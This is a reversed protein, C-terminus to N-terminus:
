FGLPKRRSMARNTMDGLWISLGGCSASARDCTPNDSAVTEIVQGGLLFTYQYSAVPDPSADLAQPCGMSDEPPLLIPKANIRQRLASAARADHSVMQAIVQGQAGHAIYTYGDVDSHWIRYEFGGFALALLIVLALASLM